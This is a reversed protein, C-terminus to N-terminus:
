TGITPMEDFLKALRPLNSGYWPHFALGLLGQEGGYTVDGRIDLFVRRSSGVLRLIRGPQEVVYRARPEGPAHTLLVPSDFGQAFVARRFATGADAREGAAPGEAPGDPGSGGCALPTVVVGAALVALVLRLRM